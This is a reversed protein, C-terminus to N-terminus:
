RHARRAREAQKGNIVGLNYANSAIKFLSDSEKIIPGLINDWLEQSILQEGLIMKAKEYNM